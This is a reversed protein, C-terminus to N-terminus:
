YGTCVTTAGPDGTIASYKIYSSPPVNRPQLYTTRHFTRSTILSSMLSPTYTYAIDVVVVSGTSFADPPLTTNSPASADSLSPTLNVTCPRKVDGWTWAVQANYACNATCSPNVKTMVVNSITISIDSTWAEGKSASDALVLPFVIMVSDHAMQLDSYSITGPPNPAESVIQAVSYSAQDLRRSATIENSLEVSGLLLFILFPAVFAFEVLATASEDRQLRRLKATIETMAITLM